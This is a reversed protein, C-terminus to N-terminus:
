LSTKVDSPPARAIPTPFHSGRRSPTCKPFVEHARSFLPDEIDRNMRRLQRDQRRGGVENPQDLQRLLPRPQWQPRRAFIGPFCKWGTPLEKAISFEKSGFSIVADLGHSDDLREDGDARLLFGFWGSGTALVGAAVIGLVIPWPNATTVGCQIVRLSVWMVVIRGAQVWVSKM